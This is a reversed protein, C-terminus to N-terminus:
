LPREFPLPRLSDRRGQPRARAGSASMNFLLCNGLTRKDGAYFQVCLSTSVRSVFMSMCKPVRVRVRVRVLVMACSRVIPEESKPRWNLIRTRSDYATKCAKGM